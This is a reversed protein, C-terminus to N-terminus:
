LDVGSWRSVTVIALWITIGSMILRTVRLESRVVYWSCSM